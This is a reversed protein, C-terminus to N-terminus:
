VVSEVRCEQPANEPLLATIMDPNERLNIGAVTRLIHALYEFPNLGNDKATETMSHLVAAARAGAVSTAFLFNKRNIVFPKVSRECRNNSIEICGDMLYRELYKWQKLTYNVAKGTACQSAILPQVSLLWEHFEKLVPTALKNRITYREEFSSAEMEREIRFLEDCYRLGIIANSGAKEKETKLTKLADFYKRRAHGFCGVVIIDDPLSHYSPCGDTMLYGSFGQLFDRPREKTKDPQYDYLVIPYKADGSTRYIWMQSQSQPSKGPERLVQFNTGDSHLFSHHLLKRHLEDYIPELYYKSIHILWKSMTQRDIKIGNRKWEQEQRHLPSGMVCKQVILHAATEPECMSGKILQPPLEAKIVPVPKDGSAKDCARCSYASRKYETVIASAPIIRFGRRVVESGIVHLPGGCDPCNQKDDPLVCEIIEVPLDAPLRSSLEGKKKPKEAKKETPLDNILQVEQYNDAFLGLQNLANKESSAGFMKNKNISLQEMLWALKSNMEALESKLVSNESKLADNETRLNAIITTSEM